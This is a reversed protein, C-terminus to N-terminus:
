DNEEITVRFLDAITADPYGNAHLHDLLMGYMDLARRHVENDILADLHHRGVKYDDTSLQRALETRPIDLGAGRDLRKLVEYINYDVKHKTM